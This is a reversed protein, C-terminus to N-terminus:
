KPQVIAEAVVVTVLEPEISHRAAFADVLAALNGDFNMPLPELPTNAEARVYRILVEHPLPSPSEHAEQQGDPQFVCSLNGEVSLLAFLGPPTGVKCSRVGSPLAWARESDGNSASARDRLLETTPLVYNERLGEFTIKDESFERILGLDRETLNELQRDHEGLVHTRSFREYLDARNGLRRWLGVQREFADSGPYFNWLAIRRWHKTPRDVRGVRQILLLPTWPLDYNVVVDADQLNEGEAIADTAILIGLDDRRRHRSRGQATPAFRSIIEGRQKPPMEGTISAIRESSRLLPPLEKALYNVTAAWMSFILVRQRRPRKRLMEALERLKTDGEPLPLIRDLETLCARFAVPDSPELPWDDTPDLLRAITERAAQPSSEARRMLMLQVLGGANSPRANEPIDLGEIMEKRASATSRRFRLQMRAIQEFAAECPPPYIKTSTVKGGFYRPGEPYELATGQGCNGDTGFYKIIFPLTVNVVGLCEAVEDIKLLRSIGILKLQANLDDINKSMPTATLLLLQPKCELPREGLLREFNKFGNSEPNRFVHSEDIIVLDRENVDALERELRRDVGEVPRGKGQVIGHTIVEMHVRFRRAEEKWMRKLRENPCIVFIRDIERKQHMVTATHASMVTKGTGTPAVLLTGRKARLDHLVAGVILEQFNALPRGTRRSLAEVHPYFALLVRLYLIYPEVLPEFVWSREIERLIHHRLDKSQAFLADFQKILYDLSAADRVVYGCEINTRLGSRSLNASTVYGAFEDFLYVKAHVHPKYLPEFYRVNVPGVSVNRYLNRITAKKSPTPPGDEISRRFDSLIDELSSLASEYGVILQMWAEQLPEELIEFGSVSLFGTAVRLLSTGVGLAQVVRASESTGLVVTQGLAEPRWRRVDASPGSQLAPHFPMFERWWTRLSGARKRLMEGDLSSVERLFRGATREDVNCLSKARFWAMWAQGCVSQEFGVALRALRAREDLALLARGASNLRGDEALFGLLKIGRTYYDVQREDIRLSIGDLPLGDRIRELIEIFREPRPAQPILISDLKPSTTVEPVKTFATWETQPQSLNSGDREKAM